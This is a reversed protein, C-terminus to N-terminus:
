LIIYNQPEFHLMEKKPLWSIKTKLGPFAVHVKEPSSRVWSFWESWSCMTPMRFLLSSKILLSKFSRAWTSFRTPTTSSLSDRSRQKSTRRPRVGKLEWSKMLTLTGTLSKKQSVIPVHPRKDLQRAQGRDAGPRIPVETNPQGGGHLPWCVLTM